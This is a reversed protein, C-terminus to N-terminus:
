DLLARLHSSNSPLPSQEALLSSKARHDQLEKLKRYVLHEFHLYPETVHKGHKGSGYHATGSGVFGYLDTEQFLSGVLWYFIFGRTFFDANDGISCKMSPRILFVPPSRFPASTRMKAYGM